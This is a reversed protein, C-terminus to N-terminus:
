PRSGGCGPSPPCVAPPAPPGRGGRHLAIPATEEGCVYAGRRDARGRPVPLGHEIVRAGGASRRGSPRRCAGSPWPTSGARLRVGADGGRRLRRHGDGGARPPPRGGARQPGHLGRTARTGTASSTSRPRRPGAVCGGSSETPYGAGGRGRLGSRTVEDIAQQPTLEHLARELARGAAPSTTRSGSRTSWAPTPRVVRTQRTFFSTARSRRRSPPTRPPGSRTRAVIALAHEAWRPTSRDGAAPEGSAAAPWGSLVDGAPRPCLARPLVIRCGCGPTRQM